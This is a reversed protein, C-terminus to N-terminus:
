ACIPFICLVRLDQTESVDDLLSESEKKEEGQLGKMAGAMEGDDDYDGAMESM